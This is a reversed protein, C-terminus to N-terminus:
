ACRISHTTTAPTTEKEDAQAEGVPWKVECTCVNHTTLSVSGALAFDTSGCDESRLLRRRAGAGPEESREDPRRGVARAGSAKLALSMPEPETEM